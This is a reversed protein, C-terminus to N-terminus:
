KKLRKKNWQTYRMNRMVEMRNENVKYNWIWQIDGFIIKLITTIIIVFAFPQWIQFSFNDLRIEFNFVEWAKGILFQMQDIM